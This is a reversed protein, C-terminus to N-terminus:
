PLISRKWRKVEADFNKVARHDSPSYPAVFFRRDGECETTIKYHGSRTMETGLVPLGLDDFIRHFEKMRKTNM